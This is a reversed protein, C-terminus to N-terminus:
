CMFTHAKVLREKWLARNRQGNPHSSPQVPFTGEWQLLWGGDPIAAKLTPISWPCPKLIRRLEREQPQRTRAVSLNSRECGEVKTMTFQVM